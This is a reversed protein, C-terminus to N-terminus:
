GRGTLPRLLGAAAARGRRAARRSQDPRWLCISAAVLGVLAVLWGVDLAGAHGSGAAPRPTRIAPASPQARDGAAAPGRGREIGSTASGHGARAHAPAARDAATPALRPSATVERAGTVHRGGAGSVHPAAGATSAASARGAVHGGASSAPSPGASAAGHPAAVVAGAPAGLSAPAGTTAPGRVPATVPPAAVPAPAPAAAPPEPRAAPPALPPLFDLPDRYGHDSGADRVGFHLHPREVSRRGSVGVAGLRDGGGVADGERVAASALHLYSVDFRGDGTRVSVTLGSTGAVGVYTVRGSTASSVAAGVPAAIDIGRHQGGAYPDDGNRYPTVVDGRVPWTWDAAAAAPQVLMVAAVLAALLATRRM